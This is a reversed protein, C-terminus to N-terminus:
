EIKYYTVEIEGDTEWIGRLVLKKHTLKVIDFENEENPAPFTSIRSPFYIKREKQNIEYSNSSHFGRGPGDIRTYYCINNTGFNLIHTAYKEEHNWQGIINGDIIDIDKEKNCGAILITVLLIPLLKKM